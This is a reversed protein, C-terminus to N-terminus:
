DRDDYPPLPLRSAATVARPQGGTGNLASITLIAASSRSSSAEAAEAHRIACSSLTGDHDGSDHASEKGDDTSPSNRYLNSDPVYGHMALGYATVGKLWSTALLHVGAVMAAELRDM